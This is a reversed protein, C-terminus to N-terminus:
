MFYQWKRYYVFMSSHDTLIFHYEKSLGENLNSNNPPQEKLIHPINSALVRMIETIQNSDSLNLKNCLERYLVNDNSLKEIDSEDSISASKSKNKIIQKVTVRCFALTKDSFFLLFFM